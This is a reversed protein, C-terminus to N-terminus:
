ESRGRLGCHVRRLSQEWRILITLHVTNPALTRLDIVRYHPFRRAQHEQEEQAQVQPVALFGLVATGAIRILVTSQMIIEKGSVANIEGDREIRGPVPEFRM